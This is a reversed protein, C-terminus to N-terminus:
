AADDFLRSQSPPEIPAAALINQIHRSTLDFELALAVLSRGERHLRRIERDRIQAVLKDAKPLWIVPVGEFANHLRLCAEVGLLEVLEGERRGQALVLRTGGRRKLLKTALAVGLVDVLRKLQPPLASRDILPPRDM